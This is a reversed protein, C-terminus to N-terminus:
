FCPSTAATDTAESLYGLAPHHEEICRQMQEESQVEYVGGQEAEPAVGEGKRLARASLSQPKIGLSEMAEAHLRSRGGIFCTSLYTQGMPIKGGSYATYIDSLELMIVDTASLDFSSLNGGAQAVSFLSAGQVRATIDQMPDVKQARSTTEAPAVKSRSCQWVVDAQAMQTTTALISALLWKM